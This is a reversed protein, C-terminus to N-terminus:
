PVEGKTSVCVVFFRRLIAIYKKSKIQVSKATSKRSITPRLQMSSAEGKEAKGVDENVVEAEAAAVVSKRQRLTEPLCVVLFLLIFAGFIVLFWQISRWGLNQALLGGIIPSLLPGCLPGLYFMSM